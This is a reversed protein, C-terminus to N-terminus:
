ISILIYCKVPQIIRGITSDMHFKEHTSANKKIRTFYFQLHICSLFESLGRVAQYKNKTGSHLRFLHVTHLPSQPTPPHALFPSSCFRAELKHFPLLSVSAKDLRLSCCVLALACRKIPKSIQPDKMTEMNGREKQGFCRHISSYVWELMQGMHILGIHNEEM